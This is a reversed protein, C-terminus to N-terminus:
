QTQWMTLRLSKTWVSIERLSAIGLSTIGFRSIRLLMGNAYCGAYKLYSFGVPSSPKDPRFTIDHDETGVLYRFIHKVTNWHLRGLNHMFRSLVCVAHAIRTWTVVMAYM